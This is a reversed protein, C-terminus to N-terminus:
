SMFAGPVGHGTCDAVVIGILETGTNTKIKEISYFDGSVIDRPKFLIFHEPLIERIDEEHPLIAEQIRLAYRISDTVDKNKQKLETNIERIENELRLRERMDRAYIVIAPKEDFTGVKASSEVPIVEGNKHMFPVDTFVLGKNEWVIAIKEASSNLFERPVLDFYTKKILEDTSYGLLLAASHNIHLLKGHVIEVVYLADNTHYVINELAKLESLSSSIRDSKKKNLFLLFIGLAALLIIISIYLLDM